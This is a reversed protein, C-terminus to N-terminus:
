VNSHQFSSVLTVFFDTEASRSRTLECRSIIKNRVKIKPEPVTILMPSIISRIFIFICDTSYFLYVFGSYGLVNIVKEADLVPDHSFMLHQVTHDIILPSYFILYFVMVKANFLMSQKTKNERRGSLSRSWRKTSRYLSGVIVSGTLLSIVYPLLYTGEILMMLVFGPVHVNFLQPYYTCRGTFPIYVYKTGFAYPLGAILGSLLFTSLLSAASLTKSATIEQIKLPRVVALSRIIGLASILFGTARMAFTEWLGVM